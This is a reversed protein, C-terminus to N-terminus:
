LWQTPRSQLETSTLLNSSKGARAVGRWTSEKSFVCVMMAIHRTSEFRHQVRHTLIVRNNVILSSM